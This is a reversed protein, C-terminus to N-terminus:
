RAEWWEYILLLGGLLFVFGFLVFMAVYFNLGADPISLASQINFLNLRLLVAVIIVSLALLSQFLAFLFKVTFKGKVRRM